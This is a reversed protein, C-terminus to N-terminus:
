ERTKLVGILDLRDLGRRVWLASATAAAIAVASAMLYTKPEVVASWRFTEQDVSASVFLNAWARGLLLGLPVAIAVELALGGLLIFSIERRTYGLVRLSALDRSRAALAIRANNYVVGFIVSSALAISVFTWVSIFSANMERLRQMDGVTDSVDIVQPSRRLGEEVESLHRPDADLLVSSITGLDGALEDVVERRAYIQLGSAEDILAVVPASVRPREGELLELDVRDGVRLGLIDALTKTVVLGQPPLEVERGGLAILQRLTGDEPLGM